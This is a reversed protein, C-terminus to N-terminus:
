GVRDRWRYYTIAPALFWPNGRYFPRTPFALGDFATAGERRLREIAEGVRDAGESLTRGFREEEPELM